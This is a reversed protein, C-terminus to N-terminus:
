GDSLGGPGPGRGPRDRFQRVKELLEYEFRENFIVFKAIQQATLFSKSEELYREFIM